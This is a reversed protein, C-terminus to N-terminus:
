YPTFSDINIYLLDMGRTPAVGTNYRKDEWILSANAGNNYPVIQINSWVPNASNLIISAGNQDVVTTNVNWGAIKNGNSTVVQTGFIGYGASLGLAATSFFRDDEWVITTNGAWSNVFIKPNQQIGVATSINRNAAIWPTAGAATIRNTWINNNIRAAVIVGNTSDGVMDVASGADRAATNGISWGSGAGWPRQIAGSNDRIRQVQMTNSADNYQYLILIGDTGDSLIKLPTETLAGQTDVDQGGGWVNQLAGNYLRARLQGATTQYILYANGKGVPM